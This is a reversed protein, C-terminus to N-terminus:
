YDKERTVIFHIRDTSISNLIRVEIIEVTNDNRLIVEDTEIM